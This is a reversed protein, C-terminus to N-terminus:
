HSRRGALIGVALGILASVGAVQWPNDRVFSDTTESVYRARTRVQAASDALASKAASVAIRVKAKVRAIDPADANKLARTLDEVDQIFANMQGNERPDVTSAADPASEM